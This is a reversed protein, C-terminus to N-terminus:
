CPSTDEVLIFRGTGTGTGSGLCDGGDLTSEIFLPVVGRRGRYVKVTNVSM